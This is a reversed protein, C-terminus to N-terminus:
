TAAQFQRMHLRRHYKDNGMQAESAEEGHRCSNETPNLKISISVARSILIADTMSDVTQDSDYIVRLKFRVKRRNERGRSASFDSLTGQGEIQVCRWTSRKSTWSWLPFAFYGRRCDVCVSMSLLPRSFTSLSLRPRFYAGEHMHEGILQNPFCLM